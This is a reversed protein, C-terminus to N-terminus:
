RDGRRYNRLRRLLARCARHPWVRDQSLQGPVGLRDEPRAISSGDAWAGHELVITVHSHASARAAAGASPVAVAGVAALSVLTLGLQRKKMKLNFKM